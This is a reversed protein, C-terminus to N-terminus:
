IGGVFRGPALRREPDFQDKVARMLELGGVPGWVDLDAKLDGPAELVVVTGGFSPARERLGAVCRSLATTRADVRGDIGAADAQGALGVTVAGVAVSGRLHATLGTEACADDLATLLHALGAIEHTVKLLVEGGAFPEAGWWDPPDDRATAGAGMVDLAATTRSEVGPPIGELLLCLTADGSAPRDLEVATPVLQSHVVRQVLAQIGDPDDVPVSVWRRSEPLPHLRFAARTIVGLTGLSGTLLKGVDYGAVNKVVKGGAHAVVGDARVVTVGILLDRVPGHLLRTPGTSATAVLGGVTGRRAPDAALWQASGALDAQLDDLRRGAGVVVILDGAAHEVVEDMRTTDLLLDVREPRAGWTLKTGSGRVVVALDHDAAVRMVAATQETTGPLAVWRAPIRDVADAETAAVAHGETAASLNELIVDGM